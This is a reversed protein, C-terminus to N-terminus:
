HFKIVPVALVSLKKNGHFIGVRHFTQGQTSKVPKILHPSSISLQVTQFSFGSTPYLGVLKLYLRLDPGVLGSDLVIDFGFHGLDLVFDLVFHELVLDLSFCGLDLGVLKLYLGLDPGM